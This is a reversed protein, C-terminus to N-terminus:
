KILHATELLKNSAQKLRGWDSLTMDKQHFMRDAIMSIILIELLILDLVDRASWPSKTSKIFGQRKPFLDDFTIGVAELIDATCCGSRCHMLIRDDPLLKIALSPNKDQHSPCSAIWRGGGLAKVKDLRNLLNGIM